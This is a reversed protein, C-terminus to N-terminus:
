SSRRDDQRSEKDLKSAFSGFSPSRVISRFRLRLFHYINRPHRWRLQPIPEVVKISGRQNKRTCLLEPQSPDTTITGQQTLCSFSKNHRKMTRGSNAPLQFIENNLDCPCYDFCEKGINLVTSPIFTVIFDRVGIVFFMTPSFILGSHIDLIADICGFCSSRETAM